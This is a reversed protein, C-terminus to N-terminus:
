EGKNAWSFKWDTMWGVFIVLNKTAVSIVIAQLFGFLLLALGNKKEKM